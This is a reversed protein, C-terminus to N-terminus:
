YPITFFFVSGTRGDSEVWIKGDHAEVIMKAIYLGLGRGRKGSDKTKWFQEFIHHLAEEPIGPGSDRVEFRVEDPLVTTDVAVKGGNPTFKIANGVLNSLVQIIRDPDATLSPTRGPYAIGLQISKSRAPESFNDRLYDLLTPVECQIREIRLRGVEMESVDLLDSVLKEMQYSSRQIMGAFRILTDTDSASTSILNSCLLVNNLPARLDHSVVALTDQRAKIAERFAYNRALVDNRQKTVALLTAGAGGILTLMLLTLSRISRYPTLAEQRDIESAIGVNLSSDWSWAGFVYVGRYDPYGEVDVGSNGSLASQAM